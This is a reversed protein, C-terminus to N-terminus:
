DLFWLSSMQTGSCGLTGPACAQRPQVRRIDTPRRSPKRGNRNGNKKVGAVVPTTTLIVEAPHKAGPMEVIPTDGVLALRARSDGERDLVELGASTENLGVSLRPDMNADFLTLRPGVSDGLLQAQLKGDRDYLRLSSAGHEGPDVRLMARTTGRDDTLVIHDRPGAPARGRDFLLAILLFVLFTGLGLAGLAYQMRRYRANVTSLARLLVRMDAEEIAM